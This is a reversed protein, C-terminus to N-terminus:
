ERISITKFNDNFEFENFNSLTTVIHIFPNERCLQFLIMLEILGAEPLRDIFVFLQDRLLGLQSREIGNYDLVIGNNQIIKFKIRSLLNDLENKESCILVLHKETKTNWDYNNKIQILLSGGM